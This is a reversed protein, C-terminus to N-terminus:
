SWLLESLSLVPGLGCLGNILTTLRPQSPERSRSQGNVHHAAAWSDHLHSECVLRPVLSPVGTQALCESRTPVGM